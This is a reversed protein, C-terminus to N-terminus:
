EAQEGITMDQELADRPQGFRQRYLRHGRANLGTKL